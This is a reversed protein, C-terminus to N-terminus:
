QLRDIAAGVETIHGTLIQMQTNVIMTLIIAGCLFMGGIIVAGGIIATVIREVQLDNMM